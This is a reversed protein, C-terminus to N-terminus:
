HITRAMAPEAPIDSFFQDWWQLEHVHKESLNFKQFITTISAKQDIITTSHDAHFPALEFHTPFSSAGNPGDPFM